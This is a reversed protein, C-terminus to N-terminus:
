EPDPPFGQHIGREQDHQDRRQKPAPQHHAVALAPAGLRFQLLRKPGKLVRVARQFVVIAFLLQRRLRQVAAFRATPRHHIGGVVRNDGDVRCALDGAPVAGGLLDEAVGGGFDQPLRKGADQRAGPMIMEQGIQVPDLRAARRHDEALGHLQRALALVAAHERDFDGHCFPPHAALPKEGARHAVDGLALVGLHRQAQLAGGQGGRGVGDDDGVAVAGDHPDVRSEGIEGAIRHRFGDPFVRPVQDLGALLLARNVLGQPIRNQGATDPMPLQHVAALVAAEVGLLLGDRRHVVGAALDRMEDGDLVVERSAMLRLRRPARALFSIM